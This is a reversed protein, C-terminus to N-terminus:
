GIAIVLVTKTGFLGFVCGVCPKLNSDTRDVVDASRGKGTLHQDGQTISGSLDLLFDSADADGIKVRTVNSIPRRFDLERCRRGITVTDTEEVFAM